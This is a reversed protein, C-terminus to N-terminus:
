LESVVTQDPAANDLSTIGVRATHDRTTLDRSKLALLRACQVTSTFVAPHL